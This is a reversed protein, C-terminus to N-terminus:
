ALAVINREPIDAHVAARKKVDLTTVFVTQTTEEEIIHIHLVVGFHLSKLIM